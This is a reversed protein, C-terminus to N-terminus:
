PPMIRAHIRAIKDLRTEDIASNFLYLYGKHLLLTRATHMHVTLQVHAKVKEPYPTDPAIVQRTLSGASYEMLGSPAPRSPGLDDLNVVHGGEM